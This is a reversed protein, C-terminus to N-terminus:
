VISKFDLFHYRYFRILYKFKKSKILRRENKRGAILDDNPFATNLVAFFELFKRILISEDFGIKKNNFEEILDLLEKESEAKNLLKFNFLDVVNQSKSKPYYESEYSCRFKLNYIRKNNGTFLDIDSMNELNRRDVVDILNSVGLQVAKSKDSTVSGLKFVFFKLSTNHDYELPIQCLDNVRDNLQFLSSHFYCIKDNQKTNIMQIEIFYFSSTTLPEQQSVDKYSVSVQKLDNLYITLTEFNKNPSSSVRKFIM